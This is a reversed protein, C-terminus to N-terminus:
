KAERISRRRVEEGPIVISYPKEDPNEMFVRLLELAKEAMSRIDVRYTTLPPNSIEAYRYDDYGTVSVDEPIRYGADILKETLHYAIEDSSCVFAEPMEDPLRLEIFRGDEGRDELLWDKRPYINEQLLAKTYGSYRDMISSTARVSGVYGIKTIGADLLLRTMKYGGRVNDSVVCHAPYDDDYFDLFVYPMGPRILLQLYSRTIEGMFILGGMKQATLVSPMRNGRIMDPTIIEMLMTFGGPAGCTLLERYLDFYFANKDFSQEEALFHEEVLVGIMKTNTKAPNGNGFNGYGLEKAADLIRRRLRDSVGDKGSLGKSVSVVSIGLKQAIDAMRVNQGM